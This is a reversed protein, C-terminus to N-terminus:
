GRGTNIRIQRDGAEERLQRVIECVGYAGSVGGVHGCAVRGGDTNSPLKGNREVVGEDVLRGGEGLECLGLEEYAMIETGTILDHVQILDLDDIPKKIGAMKYAKRAAINTGLLRGVTGEEARHLAYSSTAIGTIWVPKDTIERAKEESALILACAGDSYLCCMRATTPWAIIRSNLVDDVTVKEHIQAEPNTFANTYNKVSVKALQEPTPGGYKEIHPVLTFLTLFPPVGPTVPQLWTTDMSISFGRLIGDGRSRTDFAYFDQGKQVAVYLTIDSMGSAIQAFAASLAYGEGAAGAAVRLSSTGQTGLYDQLLPTPIQQRLMTECYISYVVNDVDRQTLKAHTLANKSAELALARFSKDAYRSRWPLTGIGVVAVKRM